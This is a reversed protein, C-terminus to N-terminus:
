GTTRMRRSCSSGAEAPSRTVDQSRRRGQPRNFGHRPTRSFGARHRGERGEGGASDPPLLTEHCRRRQTFRNPLNQGGVTGDRYLRAPYVVTDGDAAVVSLPAVDPHLCWSHTSRPQCAPDAAAHRSNESTPYVALIFDAQRRSSRRWRDRKRGRAPNGARWLDSVVGCQDVLQM